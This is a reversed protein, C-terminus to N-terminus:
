HVVCVHDPDAGTRYFDGAVLGGALAAANNAYIPLTAIPAHSNLSQLIDDFQRSITDCFVAFDQKKEPNVNINLLRKFVRNAM